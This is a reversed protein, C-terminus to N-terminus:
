SREQPDNVPDALRRSGWWWITGTLFLLASVLFLATFPQHKRRIPIWLGAAGPCIGDSRGILM